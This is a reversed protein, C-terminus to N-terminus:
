SLIMKACGYIGADNGLEALRFEKNALAFLINKNYYTEIVDILVQGARSVGGGIVFVQPDVAAAVHSLALGLYKGLDEVLSAAIADGAKAHDFIDKATIEELDRLTTADSAAALKKKAMRVIGTASAYQELHGHGGCGCVDEEDPNITIHGIEGGGGNSGAVIKGNLIVGGGVGTGLTVMVVDEYGKGGGMWMEGLAAVNADNGSAVKLGTLESMKENVNFIDWGLNACKLVTGDETIPGPVGIGVGVVDMNSLNREKMKAAITDAVDQPVLEGGNEKRTVIEWKDICEGQETFLGCKITTGGIDIGFCYKDM